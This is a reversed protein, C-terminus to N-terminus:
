YDCLYKKIEERRNNSLLILSKLGQLTADSSVMNKELLKIIM